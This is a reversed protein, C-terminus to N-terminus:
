RDGSKLKGITHGLRQAASNLRGRIHDEVATSRASQGDAFGLAYVQIFKRVEDHSTGDPLSFRSRGRSHICLRIAGDEPERVVQYVEGTVTIEYPEIAESM